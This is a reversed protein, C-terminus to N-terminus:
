VKNRIATVKTTLNGICVPQGGNLDPDTKWVWARYYVPHLVILAQEAERIAQEDLNGGYVRLEADITPVAVNGTYRAEYKVAM